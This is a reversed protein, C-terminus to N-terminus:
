PVSERSSFSRSHGGLAEPAMYHPTGVMTFTRLSSSSLKKASGFDVQVRSDRM